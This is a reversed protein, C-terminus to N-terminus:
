KDRFQIHNILKEYEILGPEINGTYRYRFNKFNVPDTLNFLVGSEIYEFSQM